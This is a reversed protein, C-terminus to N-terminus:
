VCWSIINLYWDEYLIVEKLKEENLVLKKNKIDYKVIVTNIAPFSFSKEGKVSYIDASGYNTISNLTGLVTGDELIVDLGICDNILYRGEELHIDERDIYLEKNRYLEASNRDNISDLKLILGDKLRKISTITFEKKDIYAKTNEKFLNFSSAEIKVEGKIGQPKLIKGIYVLDM